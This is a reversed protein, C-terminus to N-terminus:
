DDLKDTIHTLTTVCKPPTRGRYKAMSHRLQLGSETFKPKTPPSAEMPLPKDASTRTETAFRVKETTEQAKEAETVEPKYCRLIVFKFFDIDKVHGYFDERFQWYKPYVQHRLMAKYLVTRQQERFMRRKHDELKIKWNNESWLQALAIRIRPRLYYEIANALLVFPFTDNIPPVRERKLPFRPFKKMDREFWPYDNTMLQKVNKLQRLETFTNGASFNYELPPPLKCLFHYGTTHCEENQHELFYLECSKPKQYNKFNSIRDVFYQFLDTINQKFEFRLELNDRVKNNEEDYRELELGLECAEETTSINLANGFSVKVITQVVIEEEITYKGSDSMHPESGATYISSSKTTATNKRTDAVGEGGTARFNPVEAYQDLNLNEITPLVKYIYASIGDIAMITIVIDNVPVEYLDIQVEAYKKHLMHFSSYRSCVYSPDDYKRAEEGEGSIFYQSMTSLVRSHPSPSKVDSVERKLKKGTKNSPSTKPTVNKHTQKHTPSTSKSRDKVNRSTSLSDSYDGYDEDLHSSSLTVTTDADFGFAEIKEEIKTILVTGDKHYCKLSDATWIMRVGDGREAYSENAFYDHWEITPKSRGKYVKGRHTLNVINGNTTTVILHLYKLSYKQTLENLFRLENDISKILMEKRTKHKQDGFAVSKHSSAKSRASAKVSVKDKPNEGKDKAKLKVKKKTKEEDKEKEDDVDKDRNTDRKTRRATSKTATSDVQEIKLSSDLEETMEQFAEEEGEPFEYQYLRYVEGNYRMVMILEDNQYHVIVAGEAIFLRSKERNFTDLIHWVQEVQHENHYITLGNPYNIVIKACENVTNLLRLSVNNKNTFRLCPSVATNWFRPRFINLLIDNANLLLNKNMDTFCWREEYLEVGGEEFYYKSSKIQIEQRVDELNYGQLLPHNYPLGPVGAMHSSKRQVSMDTPRLQPLLPIQSGVAQSMHTEMYAKLKKWKLSTPRIFISMDIGDNDKDKKRKKMLSQMSTYSQEYQAQIMEPTVLADLFEEMQYLTFDRFCLPSPLVVVQQEENVENYARKFHYLKCGPMIEDVECTNYENLWKQLHQKVINEGFYLKAYYPLQFFDRDSLEHYEEVQFVNKLCGNDIYSRMANYELSTYHVTEFSDINTYLLLEHLLLNNAAICLREFHRVKLISDFATAYVDRLEQNLDMASAQKYPLTSIQAQQPTLKRVREAIQNLLGDFYIAVTAVDSAIAPLPATLYTGQLDLSEAIEQLAEVNVKMPMEVDITQFPKRYYQEYQELLVEIDYLYHCLQEYIQNTYKEALCRSIVPLYHQMYGVPKTLALARMEFIDVQIQEIINALQEKAEPHPLLIDYGCEEPLFHIIAQLPERASLLKVYFDNDMDGILIIFIKSYEPEDQIYKRKSLPEPRGVTNHQKPMLHPCTPFTLVSKKKEMEIRSMKSAKTLKPPSKPLVSPTKKLSKKSSKRQEKLLTAGTPVNLNDMWYDILSFKKEEAIIHSTRRYEALCEEIANMAVTYNDFRKTNRVKLALQKAEEELDIIFIRRRIGSQVRKKFEECISDLSNTQFNIAYLKYDHFKNASLTKTFRTSM